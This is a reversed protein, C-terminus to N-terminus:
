LLFSSCSTYLYNKSYSQTRQPSSSSAIEISELLSEEIGRHRYKRFLHAGTQPLSTDPIGSTFLEDGCSVSGSTESSVQNSLEQEEGLPIDFSKIPQQESRRLQIKAKLKDLQSLSELPNTSKQNIM